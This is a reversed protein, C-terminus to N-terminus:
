FCGVADLRALRVCHFTVVDVVELGLVKRGVLPVSQPAPRGANPQRAASDLCFRRPGGTSGVAFGPLKAAPCRFQAGFESYGVLWHFIRGNVFGHFIVTFCAVEEGIPHGQRVVLTASRERVEESKVRGGQATFETVSEIVM